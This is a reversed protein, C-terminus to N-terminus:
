QLTRLKVLTEDANQKIAPDNTKNRMETVYRIATNVTIWQESPAAEIKWRNPGIFEQGPKGAAGPVSYKNSLALTYGERVKIGGPVGSTFRLSSDLDGLGVYEVYLGGKAAMLVANNVVFDRTVHIKDRGWTAPQILLGNLEKQGEITLGNGGTQLAVFQALVVLPSQRPEASQEFQAQLLASLEAIAAQANRKIIPDKSRFGMERVYRMAASVSVHPSSPITAIRWQLVDRVEQWRGDSGLEAHKESRILSIYERVQIPLNGSLGALRAFRLSSDLRGWVSYEVVFQAADGRIEQGRAVHDKVVTIESNQSQPKQEYLLAAVEKQGEPELQKGEADIKCFTEVAEKPSNQETAAAHNELAIVAFTFFVSAALVTRRLAFIKEMKSGDLKIRSYFHKPASDLACQYKDNQPFM